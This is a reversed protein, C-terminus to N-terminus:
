DASGENASTGLTGHQLDREVSSISAGSSLKAAANAYNEGLQGAPAAGGVQKMMEGVAKSDGSEFVSLMEHANMRTYDHHTRGKAIAVSTITRTLDISSCRTCTPTAADYDKFTRYRLTLSAGCQNCKFDYTPM